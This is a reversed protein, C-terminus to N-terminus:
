NRGAVDATGKYVRRPDEATPDMRDVKDGAQHFMDAAKSQVNTAVNSVKTGLSESSVGAGTSYLPITTMGTTSTPDHAPVTPDVKYGAQHFMDAGKEQASTLLEGTKQTLSKKELDGELRDPHSGDSPVAPDVKYGAQHFLEAGKEQASTLLEGTKQTLSKKEVEVGQMDPHSGDSPVAPDVKHGAQHFLEASKVQAAALLEGTKAKLASGAEMLFEKSKVKLSSEEAPAVGTTDAYSEGLHSATQDPAAYYQQQNPLNPITGGTTMPTAYTQPMTNPITSSYVAPNTGTMVGSSPPQSPAVTDGLKHLLQAGTNQGERLLEQGKGKLGSQDGSPAAGSTYSMSSGYTPQQTMMSSTDYPTATYTAVGPASAMTNSSGTANVDTTTDSPALKEGIFHLANATHQQLSTAVTAATSKLSAQGVDLLEKGKVKWAAQSEPADRCEKLYDSGTERLTTTPKNPNINMGELDNLVKNYHETDTVNHENVIAGSRRASDITDKPIERQLDADHGLTSSHHYTSTSGLGQLGSLGSTGYSSTAADVAVSGTLPTRGTPREYQRSPEVTISQLNSSSTPELNERTNSTTSSMINSKDKSDM